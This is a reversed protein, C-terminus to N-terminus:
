TNEGRWQQTSDSELHFLMRNVEQETREAILLPNTEILEVDDLERVEELLIDENEDELPSWRTLDYQDLVNLCSKVNDPSIHPMEENQKPSASEADGDGNQAKNKKRRNDSKTDSKELGFNNTLDSLSHTTHIPVIHHGVSFVVNKNIMYCPSLVNPLTWRYM